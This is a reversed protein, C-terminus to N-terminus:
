SAQLSPKAAQRNAEGIRAVRDLLSASNAKAAALSLERRLGAIMISREQESVERGRTLGKSRLKSDALSEFLAHLDKSGEQFAGM